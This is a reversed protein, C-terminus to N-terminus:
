TMDGFGTNGRKWNKVHLVIHALAQEIYNYMKSKWDIQEKVIVKNMNRPLM